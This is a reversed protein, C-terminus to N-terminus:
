TAGFSAPPAQRRAAQAGFLTDISDADIAKDLWEGLEEM